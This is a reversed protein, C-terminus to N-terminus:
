KKKPGKHPKSFLRKIVIQETAEIHDFMLKKSLNANGKIIARLINEHDNLSQIIRKTGQYQDNRSWALLDDIQELVKLVIKNKSMKAIIKHFESDISQLQKNENGGASSSIRQKDLLDTLLKKEETSANIAALYAVQPEIMKRFEFIDVLNGTEQLAKETLFTAVDEDNYLTVFTGSGPLSKVMRNNELARLAERVTHRSVGFVEALEREPPLKDGSNLGGKDILDTIQGMVSEYAKIKKIPKLKEITTELKKQGQDAM